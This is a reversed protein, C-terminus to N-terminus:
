KDKWIFKNYLVYSYPIIIFAIILVKYIIWSSIGLGFLHITKDGFFHLTLVIGVGQIIIAGSSVLNFFLLKKLYIFVGGQVQKHRFSWFNNLFFNSIIALEASVSNALAKPLRLSKIFFYAFGFDVAFGSLGVLVYKIFTSNSFIYAFIHLMFQPSNIKSVGSLREKFKIPHEEIRAQHKIAWDLLAVQFVYGSYNKIHALASTVIWSKIARYGGTWDTIKPKMFGLRIIINGVVSYIKRHLGWDAPISGGAIYRSGVVFDAGKEIRHIFPSLDQPDHSLDADMEFIVFPHITSLAYQFGNVYAKGLGEKKTELLHINKYKKQAKKVVAITGDTSLSDVVVISFEWNTLKKTVAFIREILTGINGAENVTPIVVTAKRM